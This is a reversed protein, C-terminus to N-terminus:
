EHSITWGSVSTEAGILIFDKKSNKKAFQCIDDVEDLQQPLNITPTEGRYGVLVIDDISNTFDFFRFGWGDLCKIGLPLDTRPLKLFCITNSHHTKRLDHVPFIDGIEVAFDWNNWEKIQTKNPVVVITQFYQGSRIFDNLKIPTSVDETERAIELKKQNQKGEKKKILKQLGQIFVDIEPRTSHITIKEEDILKSVRKYGQGNGFHKENLNQLVIINYLTGFSSPLFDRFKRILENEAVAIWKSFNSQSMGIKKALENQIDPYENSAFLIFEAKQLVYDRITKDVELIRTAHEEISLRNGESMKMLDM